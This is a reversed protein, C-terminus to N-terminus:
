VGMITWEPIMLMIISDLSTSYSNVYPLKTTIFIEERPIGSEKIAERTAVETDTSANDANGAAVATSAYPKVLQIGTRHRYSSFWELSGRHAPMFDNLQSYAVKLAMLLWDKATSPDDAYAGTGTNPSLMLM